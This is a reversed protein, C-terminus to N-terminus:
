RPLPALAALVPADVAHQQLADEAAEVAGTRAEEYYACLRHLLFRERVKRREAEAARRRAAARSSGHCLVYGDDSLHVKGAAHRDFAGVGKTAAAGAAVMKWMGGVVVNDGGEVGQSM